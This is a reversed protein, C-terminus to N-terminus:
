ESIESDIVLSNVYKSKEIEEKEYHTVLEDCFAKM